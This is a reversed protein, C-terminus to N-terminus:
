LAKGMEELIAVVLKSQAEVEGLLTESQQIDKHQYAEIAQHSARHVKEHPAAIRKLYQSVTPDKPDLTDLWKGLRCSHHDTVKSLDFKHYGLLMNYIRWKWMLHDTISLAAMIPPTLTMGCSIAQMRLADLRQSIDFFAQGTRDAEQRLYESKDSISQLDSSLAHTARTQEETDALIASLCQSVYDMSQNIQQEMQAMNESVDDIAQQSERFKGTVATMQGSADQIKRELGEVIRNISGLQETTTQALKKIEESVVAFGKGQTGARAAEISANLSLLNTQDAVKKIVNIIERIKVTEEVVETMSHDVISLHGIDSKLKAFTSDMRRLSEQTDDATSQVHLHSEQVYEAIHQTSSAIEEGVAAAGEVRRAQARANAIMDRVYDLSTIHKLLENIELLTHQMCQEQPEATPTQPQAQEATATKATKKGFFM